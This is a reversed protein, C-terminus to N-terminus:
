ADSDYVLSESGSGDCRFCIAAYVTRAMGGNVKSGKSTLAWVLLVEKPAFRGREGMIAIGM